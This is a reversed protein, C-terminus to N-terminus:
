KVWVLRGGQPRDRALGDRLAMTMECFSRKKLWPSAAPPRVYPGHQHVLWRQQQKPHDFSQVTTALMSRDNILRNKRHQQLPFSIM